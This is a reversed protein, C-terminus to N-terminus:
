GAVVGGFSDIQSNLIEAMRNAKFQEAQKFGKNETTVRHIGKDDKFIEGVSNHVIILNDHRISQTKFSYHCELHEQDNSQVGVLFEVQLCMKVGQFMTIKLTTQVLVDVLIERLKGNGCACEKKETSLLTWGSFSLLMAKLFHDKPDKLREAYSTVDGVVSSTMPMNMESDWPIDSAILEDNVSDIMREQGFLALIYITLWLFDGKSRDVKVKPKNILTDRLSGIRSLAEKYGIAEVRHGSMIGPLILLKDKGRPNFPNLRSLFTM